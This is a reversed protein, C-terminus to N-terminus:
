LIPKILKSYANRNKGYTKGQQSPLYITRNKHGRFFYYLILTFYYVQLFDAETHSGPRKRGAPVTM